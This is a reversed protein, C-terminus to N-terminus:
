ARSRAQELVADIFADASGLYNNEDKLVEWDIDAGSRERVVDVLHRGSEAATRCADAVLGKAEARDMFRALAFTVAEALILGNSAAINRRMRQTDISLSDVLAGAGALAGNTLVFIQPLSLLEVQWGHTGREHEQVQAQHVASLLSTNLRAAAVIREAAIPNRKQPMTSSGGADSDSERVEGVETQALLIVDQAMKALSGTLMSLWGATEAMRDRQTHWPMNPLVLDLERALAVGTEVGRDGLAALTGAAGGFQVVLVRDQLENLRERHRILPALWGAVKLGFTTPVAQQSHTRAAMLTNRHADAMAALLGVLRDLLEAARRLAARVQLVVATDIVDQTTAGWHLYAAHPSGIRSRAQSLLAIVPFGDRETGEQLLDLDPAFGDLAARIAGAAEAPIVGLGGQAAALAAEFRLMNAALTEDSFIAGTIPDGFSAHMISSSFIM